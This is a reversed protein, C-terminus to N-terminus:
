LTANITARTKMVSESDAILKSYMTKSEDAVVVLSVQSNSSDNEHFYAIPLERDGARVVFDSAKLGTVREASGDLAVVRFQTYGPRSRLDVPPIDDPRCLEETDSQPM